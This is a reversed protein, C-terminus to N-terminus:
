VGGTDTGLEGTDATGGVCNHALLTVCVGATDRLSEVVCTLSWCVERWLRGRM